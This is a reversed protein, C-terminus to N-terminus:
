AALGQPRNEFALNELQQDYFAELKDLVQVPQSSQNIEQSLNLGGTFPAIYWRIHKRAIRVGM